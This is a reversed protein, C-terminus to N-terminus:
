GHNVLPLIAMKYKMVQSPSNVSEEVGSWRFAGRLMRTGDHRERNQARASARVGPTSTVTAPQSRLAPIGYQQHSAGPQAHWPVEQPVATLRKGRFEAPPTGCMPRGGLEVRPSRMSRRVASEIAQLAAALSTTGANPM